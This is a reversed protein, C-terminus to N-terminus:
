GVASKYAGPSRRRLRLARTSTKKRCGRSNALLHRKARRLLRGYLPKKNYSKGCRLSRQALPALEVAVIGCANRPTTAPAACTRGRRVAACARVTTCDRAILTISWCSLGILQRQGRLEALAVLSGDVSSVTAAVQQALAALLCRSRAPLALAAAIAHACFLPRQRPMHPWATHSVAHAATCLVAVARAFRARRTLLPDLLPASCCRRLLAAAPAATCAAARALPPVM